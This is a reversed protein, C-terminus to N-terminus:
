GAWEGKSFQVVTGYYIHTFYIRMTIVINSLLYGAAMSWFFIKECTPVFPMMENPDTNM